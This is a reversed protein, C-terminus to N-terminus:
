PSKIIELERPLTTLIFAKGEKIMVMDEIRVGGWNPIYIGPEITFVMSEKITENNVKSINPLEHVDLGVGHGTSHGFFQDYGEAKIIGRAISDIDKAKVGDKASLIAKERARNVINYIKIKDSIDDGDILFTRTMDSFYGNYEGGWDLIVFDGRQIIKESPKAHPMSSNKGSAVIIDFPIQLCGEKKIEYELRLAIEKEKVGSKIYPKVKLFASEARRIAVKIYRIEEKTKNKRLKEVINQLPVLEVESRKLLDFLTYSISTEFGLRKINLKKVIKKLTRERKGKEINIECNRVENFAQEQYRFDTYFLIRDRLIFAFGSSGSFGTLYRLNKLNGIFLADLNKKKLTNNLFSLKKTM